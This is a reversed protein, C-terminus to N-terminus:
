EAHKIKKKRKWNQSTHALSNLEWSHQFEQEVSIFGCGCLVYYSILPFIGSPALGLRNNKGETEEASLRICLLHYM